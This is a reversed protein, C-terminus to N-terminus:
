AINTCLKPRTQFGKHATFQLAQCFLQHLRALFSERAQHFSRGTSSCISDNCHPEVRVLNRSTILLDDSIASRNAHRLLDLGGFAQIRRFQLM